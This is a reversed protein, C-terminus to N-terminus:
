KGNYIGLNLPHIYYHQNYVMYRVHVCANKYFDYESKSLPYQTSLRTLEDIFTSTITNKNTDLVTIQSEILPTTRGLYHGNRQKTITIPIDTLTISRIKGEVFVWSDNVLVATNNNLCAHTHRARSNRTFSNSNILPNITKIFFQTKHLDYNYVIPQFHLGVGIIIVLSVAGLLGLGINDFNM